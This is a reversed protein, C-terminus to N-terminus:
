RGVGERNGTKEYREAALRRLGDFAADKCAYGGPLDRRGGFRHRWYLARRGAQSGRELLEDLRTTLARIAANSKPSVRARFRPCATSRPYRLPIWSKRSLFVSPVAFRRAGISWPSPPSRRDSFYIASTGRANTSRKQLSKRPASIRIGYVDGEVLRSFYLPAARLTETPVGGTTTVTGGLRAKEIVACRHGFFPALETASEGAPGLGIAISDYTDTM